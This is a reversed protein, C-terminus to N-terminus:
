VAEAPRNVKRHISFHNVTLIYLVFNSWGVNVKGRGFELSSGWRGRIAASQVRTRLWGHECM